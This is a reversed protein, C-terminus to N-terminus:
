FFRCLFLEKMGVDAPFHIQIFKKLSELVRCRQEPLYLATFFSEM